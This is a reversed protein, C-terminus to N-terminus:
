RPAKSARSAVSRNVSLSSMRMFVLTRNKFMLAASCELAVDVVRLGNTTSTLPVLFRPAVVTDFKLVASVTCDAGTIRYAVGPAEMWWFTWAFEVVVTKLHLEAKARNSM